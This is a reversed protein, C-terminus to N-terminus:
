IREKVKVGENIAVNMERDSSINYVREMKGTIKETWRESRM